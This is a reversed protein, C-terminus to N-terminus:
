GANESLFLLIRFKLRQPQNRLMQLLGYLCQSESYLTFAVWNLWVRKFINSIM